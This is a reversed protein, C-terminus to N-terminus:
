LDGGLSININSAAFEELGSVNGTLIRSVVVLVIIAVLLAVIFGLTSDLGKM